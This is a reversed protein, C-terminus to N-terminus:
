GGRRDLASAFAQLRRVLPLADDATIKGDVGREDSARLASELESADARVRGAAAAALSADDVSSALGTADLLLRRLRSRATAVADGATHARAYLGAMTDVFELPSTRPEVVRDLVPARRRVYMAAAVVAILGTQAFLWPLATRKAYSYLSRRQGHYFEDWLIARDKAGVVNLLLELHGPEDIARNVIPTTGAWWVALGKGIRAARVVSARGDGYLATYRPELDTRVCLTDMSIQPAGATLPSPFVATFPQEDLGGALDPASAGGGRSLFSAAQCGTVLVTGGASVFVQLARRDGDSAPEKPDALILVTSFPTAALSSLSEFSRTVQYGLSQLTAYAAASGEPDLSFSSGPALGDSSPPALVSVTASLALVLALGSVGVAVERSRRPPM